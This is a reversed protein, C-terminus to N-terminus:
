HRALERRQKAEETIKSAIRDGEAIQKANTADDGPIQRSLQQVGTQSGTPPTPKNGKIVEYFDLATAFGSVLQHDDEEVARSLTIKTRDVSKSLYRQEALDAIAPTIAGAKIAEERAMTVAKAAWYIESASPKAPKSGTSLTQIETKKAALETKLSAAEEEAKTARSLLSQTETKQTGLKDAAQQILDDDKVDAAAGLAERIKSLNMSSDGTAALEFILAEDTQGRSAAILGAQGTVVPVPTLASHIIADGYRVGKGDVYNPDIGISVKNRSAMRIADEGILQHLVKLTGGERKMDVVYGLANRATESHDANVGVDVGASRMKNFNEVWGDMRKRDVALRFKKVPHIYEGESIADAWYHKVPQGDKETILGLGLTVAPRMEGTAHLYYNTM